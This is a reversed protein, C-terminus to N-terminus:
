ASPAKVGARPMTSIRVDGVVCYANVSNGNTIRLRCYYAGSPTKLVINRNRAATDIAMVMTDSSGTGIKTFTDDFYEIYVYCTATAVGKCNAYELVGGYIPLYDTYVEQWGSGGFQVGIGRHDLINNAGVTLNSPNNLMTELGDSLDYIASLGTLDNDTNITINQYPLILNRAITNVHGFIDHNLSVNDYVVDEIVVKYRPADYGYILQKNNSSGVDDPYHFIGNKLRLVGRAGNNVVIPTKTTQGIYGNTWGIFDVNGNAFIQTGAVEIISDYAFIDKGQLGIHNVNTTCAFECGIFVVKGENNVVCRNNNTDFRSDTWTEYMNTDFNSGIITLYGNDQNGLFPIAVSRDRYGFIYTESQANRVSTQGSKAGWVLGHWCELLFIEFFVNYQSQRQSSSVIQLCGYYTTSSNGHIKINKFINYMASSIVMVFDNTTGIGKLMHGNFDVLKGSESYTVSTVAYDNIFKVNKGSNFAQQVALTDDTTGDGVAGYDEPTVYDISPVNSVIENISAVLSAKTTTHLDDLDGCNSVVENIADVLNDKDTTELNSLSGINGVIDQLETSHESVTGDLTDISDFLENIASVTNNKNETKLTSVVGIKAHASEDYIDLLYSQDGEVIELEKVLNAM